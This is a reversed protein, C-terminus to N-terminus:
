NESSVVNLFFNEVADKMEGKFVAKYKRMESWKVPGDRSPSSKVRFCGDKKQKDQAKKRSL